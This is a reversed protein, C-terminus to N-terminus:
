VPVCPRARNSAAICAAPMCAALGAPGASSGLGECYLRNHLGGNTQLQPGADLLRSAVKLGTSGCEMSSVVSPCMTSWIATVQVHKGRLRSPEKNRVLEEATQAVLKKAHELTLCEQIPDLICNADAISVYFRAM